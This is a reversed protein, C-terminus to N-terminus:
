GLCGRLFACRIQQGGRRYSAMASFYLTLSISRANLDRTRREACRSQYAGPFTKLLALRSAARVNWFLAFFSCWDFTADTAMTSGIPLTSTACFNVPKNLRRRPAHPFVYVISRILVFRMSRHWHSATTWSHGVELFRIYYLATSM